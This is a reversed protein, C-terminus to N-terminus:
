RGRTITLERVTVEEGGLYPTLRALAAAVSPDSSAEAAAAGAVYHALDHNAVVGAEHDDFQVTVHDVTDVPDAGSLLPVVDGRNELSLVPTGPPTDTVPSGATVVGVVRLDPDGALQVAVMGGLSHGVLVVPDDRGIGAAALAARVGDAYASDLGARARLDSQADRVDPDFDWPLGLADTGPLYVVHAGRGASAIAITGPARDNVDSLRQVVDALGHPAPATTVCGDTLVPHGPVDWWSAADAAASEVTPHLSIPLPGLTMGDLLGGSANVAHRVLDPHDAVLGDLPGPGGAPVPGLRDVLRDLLPDRWGDPTAELALGVPWLPTGVLRGATYDLADLLSAMAEDAAELAEVAGRCGRADLEWCLSDLVGLVSARVLAAEVEAFSVPALPATALLHPDALAGGAARAWDRARDGVVDLDGALSRIEAYEAAIGGAGGIVGTIRPLAPAAAPAGATM